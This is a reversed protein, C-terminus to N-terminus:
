ALLSPVNIIDGYEHIVQYLWLCILAFWFPKMMKLRLDSLQSLVELLNLVEDLLLNGLVALREVGVLGPVEDVEVQLGFLVVLVHVGTTADLLCTMEEISLM